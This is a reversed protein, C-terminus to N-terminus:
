RPEFRRTAWHVTASGNPEAARVRLYEYENPVPLQASASALPANWEVLSLDDVFLRATGHEPRDLVVAAAVLTTVEPSVEAEFCTWDASVAVATAAILGSSTASVARSPYVSLGITGSVGAGDTRYCGSLGYRKGVALVLLGASRVSAAGLNGSKRVLELALRGTHVSADSPGSDPAHFLWGAGRGVGKGGATQDEFSGDWLLERGLEISLERQLGSEIATSVTVAYGDPNQDVLHLTPSVAGESSPQLPLVEDHGTEIARAGDLSLAIEGRGRWPYILVPSESYTAVRRIIRSALLGTALQPRFEVLAIPRLRESVLLKHRATAELLVGVRAEPRTGGFVLQGLGGAVLVGQTASFPQMPLSGHGIVLAAGAEVAAQALPLLATSDVAWPEGTALHAIVLDAGPLAAAVARSVESPTAPASGAKTETADFFPSQDTKSTAGHGLLASRSVQALSLGRRSLLLPAQAESLNRGAGLHYTQHSDLAELTQTVGPDLYDYVHDNGLNLVDLRLRPFDGAAQAPAVARDPKLPHPTAGTGLATALNATVLDYRSFLPSVGALLEEVGAGAGEGPPVLADGTLGDRNPDALGRDFSLDGAFLLRVESGEASSLFFTAAAAGGNVPYTVSLPETQPISGSGDLALLYGGEELNEFTALGSADTLARRGDVAVTVGLLPPGMEALVHVSLTGSRSTPAVAVHGWGNCGAVGLGMALVLGGWASARLSLNWRM